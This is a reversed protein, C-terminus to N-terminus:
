IWQTSLCQSLATDRGFCLVIGRALTQVRGVWGPPLRVLWSAMAGVHYPKYKWSLKITYMCQAKLNCEQEFKWNCTEFKNSEKQVSEPGEKSLRGTDATSKWEHIQNWVQNWVQRMPSQTITTYYSFLKISKLLCGAHCTTGSAACRGIWFFILGQM